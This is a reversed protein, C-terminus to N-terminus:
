GIKSLVQWSSWLTSSLTTPRLPLFWCSLYLTSRGRSGLFDNQHLGAAASTSSLPYSARQLASDAWASGFSSQLGRKCHGVYTLLSILRYYVEYWTYHMMRQPIKILLLQKSGGDLSNKLKCSKFIVYRHFLLQFPTPNCFFLCFWAYLKGM